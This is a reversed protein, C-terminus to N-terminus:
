PQEGISDLSHYVVDVTIDVEAYPSEYHDLFVEMSEGCRVITNDTYNTVGHNIAYGVTNNITEDLNDQFIQDDYITDDSVQVTVEVQYKKTYSKM